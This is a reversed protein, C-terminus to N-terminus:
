GRVDISLDDLCFNIPLSKGPPATTLFRSALAPSIPELRPGPLDWMGYLLYARAGCSSLRFELAQSGCSSLGHALVISAQAGLAQAGCCSFSGCHSAQASCHLTVRSAVVLSLGCVAVFAWRLWFHIFLYYIFKNKLFRRAFVPKLHCM